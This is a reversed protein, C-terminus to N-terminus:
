KREKKKRGKETKANVNKGCLYLLKFLKFIKERERCVIERVRGREIGRKRFILFVVFTHM